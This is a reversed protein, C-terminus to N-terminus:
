FLIAALVLGLVLLNLLMSVGHAAAFRREAEAGPAAAREDRLRIVRQRVVTGQVLATVLAAAALASRPMPWGLPIQLVVTLGGTLWGFAYYGPFLLSVVRGAEERGLRRFLVPTAAFSYYLIAGAWVGLLGAAWRDLVM